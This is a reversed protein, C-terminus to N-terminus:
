INFMPNDSSNPQYEWIESYDLSDSWPNILQLFIKSWKILKSFIVSEGTNYRAIQRPAQTRMERHISQMENLSPPQLIPSMNPQERLVASPCLDAQYLTLSDDEPLPSHQHAIIININPGFENSIWKRLEGITYTYPFEHNAARNDLQFSIKTYKPQDTTVVTNQGTFYNVFDRTTPFSDKWMHTIQTSNPGFVIISPYSSIRFLAVFQQVGPTSNMKECRAVAFGHSITHLVSSNRWFLEHKMLDEEMSVIVTIEPHFGKQMMALNIDNFFIQNQEESM